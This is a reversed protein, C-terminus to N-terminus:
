GSHTGAAAPEQNRETLPLRNILREIYEEILKLGDEEATLNIILNNKNFVISKLQALKERLDNPSVQFNAAIQQVFRLQTRGNWQEDLYAPQSHQAGAARKAFIHGSPVIASQLNNKREAILDNM